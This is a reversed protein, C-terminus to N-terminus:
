IFLWTEYECLGYDIDGSLESMGTSSEAFFSRDCTPGVCFLGLPDIKSDLPRFHYRGNSSQAFSKPRLGGYAPFPISALQSEFQTLSKILQLKYYEAMQDWQRFLQIGRANEMILYEAGVPNARDASWSFVRPVPITTHKRVTIAPLCSYKISFRLCM